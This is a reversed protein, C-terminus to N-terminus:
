DTFQNWFIDNTICFYNDDPCWHIIHCNKKNGDILQILVKSKLIRYETENNLVNTKYFDSKIDNLGPNDSILGIEWIGEKLNEFDKGGLNTHINKYIM